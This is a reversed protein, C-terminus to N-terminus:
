RGAARDIEERKAFWGKFLVMMGVMVVVTAVMMAILLFLEHM